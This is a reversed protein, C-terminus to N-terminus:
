AKFTAPLSFNHMPLGLVLTDAARVEEVLDWTLAWSAKEEPTVAANRAEDLDRVEGSELRHMVAIQEADVHAVPRAALDRYVHTGEPNAARWSAAFEATGRRTTSGIRPSTDLHLLTPVLDREQTRHDTSPHPHPHTSPPENSDWADSSRVAPGCLPVVNSM